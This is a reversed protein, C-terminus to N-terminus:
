GRLACAADAVLAAVRDVDDTGTRFNVLCARLWWRGDVLAPSLVAQGDRRLRALLARNFADLAAPDDLGAPRARFTAVGLQRTGAELGPTAQVRAFLRQALAIDDAITRRYGDRGAMRLALWVKLARFGRTNQTGLTHFDPGPLSADSASAGTM